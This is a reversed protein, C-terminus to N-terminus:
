LIVKDQAHIDAGAAMLLKVVEAHGKECAHDLATHDEQKLLMHAVM